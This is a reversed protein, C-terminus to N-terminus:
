HDEPHPSLPFTLFLLRSVTSSCDDRSPFVRRRRKPDSAIHADLNKHTYWFPKTFTDEGLKETPM